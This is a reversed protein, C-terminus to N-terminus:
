PDGVGAAGILRAAEALVTRRMEGGDSRPRIPAGFAVRITTTRLARLQIQLLAALWQRDKDRRRIRTLPHRLAERAVVGSVIAPVVTVDGALRVVMDLSESWGQLSEIAGELSAPDPEIAGAPFTLVAGGSRLHRAVSRISRLRSIPDESITLLYRSTHPLARLFQRDAAVIRLDARPIAAFLATTDGLGPHNAVILLPGSRPVRDQDRVEMGRALHQVAWAGGAALGRAGVIEDYAIVHRAFRRAAPRSLADLLWRGRRVTGLGVGDLLDQTNARILLDLQAPDPKTAVITIPATM